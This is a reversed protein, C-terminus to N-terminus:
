SDVFIVRGRIYDNSYNNMYITYVIFHMKNSDVVSELTTVYNWMYIFPFSEYEKM